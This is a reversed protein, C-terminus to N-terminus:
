VHLIIVKRFFVTLITHIIEFHMPLVFYFEDEIFQGQFGCSEPSHNMEIAAVRRPYMILNLGM